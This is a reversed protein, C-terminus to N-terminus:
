LQDVLCAIDSMSFRLACCASAMWLFGGQIGLKEGAAAVGAGRPAPADTAEGQPQGADGMAEVEFVQVSRLLYSAAIRVGLSINLLKM